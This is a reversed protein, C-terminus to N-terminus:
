SSSPWKKFRMYHNCYGGPNKNLYDQHARHAPYFTTAGAIATTVTKGSYRVKGCSVLEQLESKVKEAIRRQESDHVFIVSAYQTGVDNGQRNTTTPDHFMFFHRLLREYVVDRGVGKPDSFDADLVEVHGTRGSCVERYSPNAKCGEPGMFGVATRTVVGGEKGFNQVHKETGWYCGAGLTTRTSMAEAGSVEQVRVDGFEQPPPARSSVLGMDCCYAFGVLGLM